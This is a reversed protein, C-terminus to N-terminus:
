TDLELAIVDLGFAKGLLHRREEIQLPTVDEEAEKNIGLKPM